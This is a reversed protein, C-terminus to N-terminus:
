KIVGVGDNTIYYICYKLFDNVAQERKIKVDTM